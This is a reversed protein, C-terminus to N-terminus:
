SLSRGVRQRRLNCRANVVHALAHLPVPGRGCVVGQGRLGPAFHHSAAGTVFFHLRLQRAALDAGDVVEDGIVEVQALEGFVGDGEALPRVQEVGKVLAQLADGDEIRGAAGAREEEGGEIDQLRKVFGTERAHLLHHGLAVAEFLRVTPARAQGAWGVHWRVTPARAQGAWGVAVALALAIALM